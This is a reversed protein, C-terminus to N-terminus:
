GIQALQRDVALGFSILFIDQLTMIDCAGQFVELELFQDLQIQFVLARDFAKVRDITKVLVRFRRRFDRLKRVTWEARRL